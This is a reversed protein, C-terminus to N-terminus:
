IAIGKFSDIKRLELFIRMRLFAVAITGIGGFLAAPATGFLAAAVGRSV